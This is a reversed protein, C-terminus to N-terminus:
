MASTLDAATAFFLHGDTEARGNASLFWLKREICHKRLRLMPGPTGSRIASHAPPLGM